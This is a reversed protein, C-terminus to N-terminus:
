GRLDATLETIRPLQELHLVAEVVRETRAGLHGSALRNFKAIVKEKSPQLIEREIGQTRLISGNKMVVEIEVSDRDGEAALEIRDALALVEQDELRDYCEYSDVPRGLFAAAICFRASVAAHLHTRYPAVNLFGPNTYTSEAVRVIVKEIERADIRNERALQWSLALPTQVFICVPREKYVVDEILYREGLGATVAACADTMGSFARYFGSAGELSTEAATAGSRALLAATVGNRSSMGVNLKVDMTGSLFGEGFGSSFMAACGIANVLGDADLRLLKGATVAAGITGTVGSARFKPLMAPGGQYIRAITEYGAVVAALVEAGSSGEEEAVAVAAPVTLAGPHSKYLFDDQTRANILLANVFAADIAPVRQSHAYITADGRNMRVFDLAVRPVPLGQGAIATAFADLIRLKATERVGGPLDGPSLGHVFQALTRSISLSAM